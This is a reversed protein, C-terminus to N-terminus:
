KLITGVVKSVLKGDTKGKYRAMMEKM